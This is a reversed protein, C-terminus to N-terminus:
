TWTQKSHCSHLALKCRLGGPDTRLIARHTRDLTGYRTYSTHVPTITAGLILKRPILQLITWGLFTQSCSFKSSSTDLNFHHVFGRYETGPVAYVWVHHTQIRVGAGASGALASQRKWGAPGVVVVKNQLNVDGSGKVDSLLSFQSRALLKRDDGDIKQDAQNCCGRVERSSSRYGALM